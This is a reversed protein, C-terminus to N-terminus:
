RGPHTRPPTLAHACRTRAGPRAQDPDVMDRELDAVDLRREREVPLQEFEGQAPAAVGHREDVHAVLEDRQGLAARLRRVLVPVEAEHDVVARGHALRELPEPDRDERAAAEIEEVGPAVADLHDFVPVDLEGLRGLHQSSHRKLVEVLALTSAPVRRWPCGNGTPV